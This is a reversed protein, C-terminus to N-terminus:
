WRKIACCTLACASNMAPLPPRTTKPLMPSRMPSCMRGSLLWVRERDRCRFPCYGADGVLAARGKSWQPMIVQAMAGFYFDTSSWMREVFHPIEWGWGASKEAVLAKQAAVDGRHEDAIGAGFGINIRLQTNKRVTYILYGFGRAEESCAIQWDQLGLYNPIGFVAIGVGLEKVLPAEDGFVLHRIGSHIGDAGIVLDFSRDPANAFKVQVRDADERMERVHDGFLTEVDPIAAMLIASLDDRLLEIDDSDFRGGSYTREQTRSLEKGGADQVSMGKMTTKHAYAQQRLGMREMVDLAKGRIDIAQGGPRLQAAREILTPTFGRKKLWFAMAPGAISAGSILVTQVPRM